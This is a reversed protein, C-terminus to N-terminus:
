GDQPKGEITLPVERGMRARLRGERHAQTLAAAAEDARPGGKKIADALTRLDLDSMQPVPRLVGSVGARPQAARPSRGLLEDLRGAARAEEIAEITLNALDARALQDSM